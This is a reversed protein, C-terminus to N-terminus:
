YMCAGATVNLDQGTVHSAQESCLYLVTDAIDTSQILEEMPSAAKFEQEVDEYSREQNEAQNKIVREIRPGEVSGPCIANVTIDDAALEVALTRVFGIVGMKSTTYPTRDKLPRKGSMSSICVVRGADSERLHPIAARVTNFHGGLNVELTRLFEESSIEETPKTPGAIGVNNVLIDVGGFSDVATEVLREMDEPQSADGVVPVVRGPADELERTAKELASDDIDNICVDVGTAALSKAIQLGIGSGSATIVASEGPIAFEAKPM